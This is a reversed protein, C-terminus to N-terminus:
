DHTYYLPTKNSGFGKNLSAHNYNAAGAQAIMVGTDENKQPVVMAIHGDGASKWVAVTPYGTNAREIANISSTENWGYGAGYDRLWDFMRPANQYQNGESFSLQPVGTKPDLYHPIEAGMAYTVDWVFINCYTKGGSKKYRAANEVDFIDIVARYAETSRMRTNTYLPIIRVGPSKKLDGKPNYDVFNIPFNNISLGKDYDLQECMINWFYELDLLYKSDKKYINLTNPKGIAGGFKDRKQYEM